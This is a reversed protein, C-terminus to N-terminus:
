KVEIMFPARGGDAPDGTIAIAPWQGGAPRWPGSPRGPKNGTVEVTWTGLPLAVRITGDRDTVAALDYELVEGTDCGSMAGHVLRLRAGAVPGASFAATGFRSPVLVQFRQSTLGITAGSTTSHPEVSVAASRFSM